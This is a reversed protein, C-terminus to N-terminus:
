LVPNVSDPIDGHSEDDVQEKKQEDDHSNGDSDDTLMFM